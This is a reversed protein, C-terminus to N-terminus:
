RKKKRKVTFGNRNRNLIELPSGVIGGHLVVIPRGKGYVEYYIKADDSKVYHGASQHNGYPISSATANGQMFYRLGKIDQGFLSFSILLIFFSFITKQKFLKVTM